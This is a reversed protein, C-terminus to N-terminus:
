QIIIVFEKQQPGLIADYQIIITFFLMQLCMLGSFDDARHYSGRSLQASKRMTEAFCLAPRTKMSPKESFCIFGMLMIFLM